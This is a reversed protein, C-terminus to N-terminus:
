KEPLHPDEEKNRDAFRFALDYAYLHYGHSTGYLMERSRGTDTVGPM